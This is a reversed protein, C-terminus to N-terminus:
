RKACGDCVGFFEMSHDTITSFKKASKEIKKVFPETNCDVDEVLGCNTCVIHHHHKKEMEYHAHGHQLDVRRIIGSNAFTELARYLTVTDLRRRIRKKLEVVTSPEKEKWLAELIAIRGPTARYGADQLMEKFHFM